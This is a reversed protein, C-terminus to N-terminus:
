WKRIDEMVEDRFGAVMVGLAAQVGRTLWHTAKITVKRLLVWHIVWQAKRAGRAALMEVLLPPKGERPIFTLNAMDRPSTVRKAADSIPISLAKANRPFIDGGEQQIRAYAAAPSNGPVGIAGRPAAADLMWGFVSSALGTAPNQINIDLEGTILQRVIDEAGLNVATEMGRAFTQPMAKALKEDRAIKRKTAAPLTMTVIM